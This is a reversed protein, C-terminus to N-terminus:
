HVNSLIKMIKKEKIDVLKSFNLREVEKDDKRIQFKKDLKPYDRDKRRQDSV